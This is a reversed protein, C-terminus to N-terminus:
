QLTMTVNSIQMVEILKVMYNPDPQLAIVNRLECGSPTLSIVGTADTISFGPERPANSQVDFRAEQGAFNVSPASFFDTLDSYEDEGTSRILGFTRLDYLDERTIGIDM